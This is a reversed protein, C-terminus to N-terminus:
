TCSDAVKNRTECWGTRLKARRSQGKLKMAGLSPVRVPALVVAIIAPEKRDPVCHHRFAEYITALDQSTAWSAHHTDAGDGDRDKEVRRRLWCAQELLPGPSVVIAM